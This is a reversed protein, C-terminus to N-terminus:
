IEETPKDPDFFDAESMNLLEKIIAKYGKRSGEPKDSDFLDMVAIREDNTLRQYGSQVRKYDMVDVDADVVAKFAEYAGQVHQQNIPGPNMQAFKQKMQDVYRNDDFLGEFIDSNFGLFSLGKTLADTQLKKMYEDDVKLYGSAGQTMYAVKISSSIPFEGRKGDYTYFMTATYSALETQGIERYIVQESDSIIGWGIGYPGFVSTANKRQYQPCIATIKMQGIKGPKTQKPDTEQVSVWLSLNDNSM